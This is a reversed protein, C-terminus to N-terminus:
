NSRIKCHIFHYSQCVIRDTSKFLLFQKWYIVAILHTKFFKWRFDLINAKIINASDVFNCVVSSFSFLGFIPVASVHLHFSFDELYLRAHETWGLLIYYQENYQSMFHLNVLDSSGHSVTNKMKFFFGGKTIATEKRLLVTQRFHWKTEYCSFPIFFVNM